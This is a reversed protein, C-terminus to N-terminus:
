QIALPVSNSERGNARIKLAVTTAHPVQDTINFQVAALGVRGAAAGAWVPDFAQDGIVIKVQDALPYKPKAPVPFGDEMSASM